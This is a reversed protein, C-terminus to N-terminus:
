RKKSDDSKKAKKLEKLHLKVSNVESDLDESGNLEMIWRFLQSDGAAVVDSKNNLATSLPLTLNWGAQALRKSQLKYIFKHCSQERAM